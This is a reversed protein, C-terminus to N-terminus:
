LKEVRKREQSELIYNVVDEVSALRPTFGKSDIDLINRIIVEEVLESLKQAGLRRENLPTRGNM